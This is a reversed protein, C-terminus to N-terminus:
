NDNIKKNFPNSYRIPSTCYDKSSSADNTTSKSFSNSNSNTLVKGNLSLTKPKPSNHFFNLKKSSSNSEINTPTNQSSLVNNSKEECYNITLITLKEKNERKKNSNSNNNKNKDEFKELIDTIFGIEERTDCFIEELSIIIFSDDNELGKFYKSEALQM